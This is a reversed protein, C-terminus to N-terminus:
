INTKFKNLTNNVWNLNAQIMNIGQRLALQGHLTLELHHNEYYDELESIYDIIHNKLSKLFSIVDNIDSLFEMFVFRLMIEDMKERVETSSPQKLCWEKLVSMGLTTIIYNNKGSNPNIEKRILSESELRNLAPYISGPSSSYESMPTDEFIKRIKYGTKPDVLLGLIAYGLSTPKYM